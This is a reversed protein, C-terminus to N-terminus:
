SLWESPEWEPDLPLSHHGWSARSARGVEGIRRTEAGLGHRVPDVLLPLLEVESRQGDEEAQQEEVALQVLQSRCGVRVRM